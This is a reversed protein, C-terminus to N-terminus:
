GALPNGLWSVAAGWAAIGCSPDAQAATELSKIAYQFWFSHLLAVGRTFEQQAAANCSTPFNVSGLKETEHATAPTVCLWGIGLAIATTRMSSGGQDERLTVASERMARPTGNRSTRYSRPNAAGRGAAHPSPTGLGPRGARIVPRGAVVSPPRTE